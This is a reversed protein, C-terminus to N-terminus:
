YSFGLSMHSILCAHCPLVRTVRRRKRSLPSEPSLSGQPSAASPPSSAPSGGFGDSSYEAQYGLKASQDYLYLAAQRLEEGTVRGGDLFSLIVPQAQERAWIAPTTAM